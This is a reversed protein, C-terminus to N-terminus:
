SFFVLWRSGKETEIPTVAFKTYEWHRRALMAEKFSQPTAAVELVEGVAYYPAYTTLDPQIDYGMAERFRREFNDKGIDFIIKRLQEIQVSSAKGQKIAELLHQHIPFREVLFKFAYASYQLANMVARTYTRQELVNIAEDDMEASELTQGTQKSWADVAAWVFPEVQPNMLVAHMQEATSAKLMPEISDYRAFLESKLHEALLTRLLPSNEAIKVITDIIVCPIM